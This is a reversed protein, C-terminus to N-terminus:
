AQRQAGYEVAVSKPLLGSDITPRWQNGAAVQARFTEEDLEACIHCLGKIEGNEKYCTEWLAHHGITKLSAPLYLYTLAQDGTFADSGITELGDPLSVRVNSLADSVDSVAGDKATYTYINELSTCKFLAMTEIERLGEPLYLDTINAYNLATAGLTKVGPVVVYTRVDKNYQAYFADDYADTPGWLETIPKGEDDKLDTYGCKERLYQDHDIPYCILRSCDKTYLVGDIDCFAPNDQAVTIKQLAWCSYFSTPAIETVTKGITIETLKEDCNFAFDHVQTIPRSSDGDAYDLTLATFSGPNSFKVLEVTGDELTKYQYTESHVARLSFFIALGIAVLLIVVVTIKKRRYNKVPKGVRPAQLGDIRYTWIEDEPIDLTYPLAQAAEEKAEEALFDDAPKKEKAESM